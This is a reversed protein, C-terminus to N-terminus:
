KNKARTTTQGPETDTAELEEAAQETLEALAKDREESPTPDGDDTPDARKWGQQEWVPVSELVFDHTVDDKSMRVLGKNTLLEM